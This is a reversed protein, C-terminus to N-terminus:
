CQERWTYRDRDEFCTCAVGVCDGETYRWIGVAAVFAEFCCDHKYNQFLDGSLTVGSAAM